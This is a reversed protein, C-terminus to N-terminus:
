KDLRDGAACGMVHANILGCAQMLAYATTPGIFTFNAAKLAKALAVSETTQTPIQDGTAPRSHTGPQHSWVLRTLGDTGLALTAAANGIAARIKGQHRIIRSDGRLRAIAEADFTSVVEPDFNAFLERFAERRSLITWWSLGAQFGELCVREYLARDDRVEIGWENDHYNAYAEPVGLAWSCRTEDSSM